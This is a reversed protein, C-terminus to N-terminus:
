VPASTLEKKLFAANLAKDVTSEYGEMRAVLVGRDNIFDIDAFASHEASRTVRAAVRV